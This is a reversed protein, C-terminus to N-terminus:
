PLWSWGASSGRCGAAPRGLRALRHLTRLRWLMMITMQPPIAAIVATQEALAFIAHVHTPGIGPARRRDHTTGGPDAGPM